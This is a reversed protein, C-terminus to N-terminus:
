FSKSAKTQGLLELTSWPVQMGFPDLFVIARNKRWDIKPNAVVSDRLFGNCDRQRIVIRRTAGFESKLKELAAAREPSREIFVYGDFPRAIELAVRPSGALFQQQEAQSKSFNAIELFLKPRSRSVNPKPRVVNLGSGAFADIYYFRECWKQGGLITTYAALYKGLRDLKDTAWPGVSNKTMELLTLSVKPISPSYGPAM